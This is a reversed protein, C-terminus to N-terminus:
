FPNLLLIKFNINKHKGYLYYKGEGISELDLLKGKFLKYAKYSGDCGKDIYKYIYGNKTKYSICIKESTETFPEEFSYKIFLTNDKFYPFPFFTNKSNYFFEDRVTLLFSALKVRDLINNSTSFLFKTERTLIYSVYFFFFTFLFLFVKFFM